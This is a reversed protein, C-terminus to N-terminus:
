DCLGVVFVSMEEVFPIIAIDGEQGVKTCPNFRPRAVCEMFMLKEIANKPKTQEKQHLVM